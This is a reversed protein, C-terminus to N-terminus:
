PMAGGVADADMTLLRRVPPSARLKPTGAWLASSLLLSMVYFWLLCRADDPRFLDVATHDGSRVSRVCRAPLDLLPADFVLLRCLQAFLGAQVIEARGAARSDIRM